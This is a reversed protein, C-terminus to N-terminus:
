SVAQPSSAITRVDCRREITIARGGIGFSGCLYITRYRRELDLEHMPQVTLRPKFGDKAAQAKAEAIM